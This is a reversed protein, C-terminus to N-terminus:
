LRASPGYANQLIQFKKTNLCEAKCLCCLQNSAFILLCKKFLIWHCVSLYVCHLVSQRLLIPRNQGLKLTASPTLNTNLENLDFTTWCCRTSRSRQQCCGPWTCVIKDKRLQWNQNFYIYINRYISGICCFPTTMSCKKIVQPYRKNM